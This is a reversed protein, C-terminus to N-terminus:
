TPPDCDAEADETIIRELIKRRLEAPAGRTKTRAELFRLYTQEFDALKQCPLCDVLHGRMRAEIEPTLEEDLYEYMHDLAQQCDLDKSETKM